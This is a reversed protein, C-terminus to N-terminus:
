QLAWLPWPQTWTPKVASSWSGGNFSCSWTSPNGYEIKTPTQSLFQNVNLSKTHGDTYSLNITNSFPVVSPDTENTYVCTGSGAKKFKPIWMERVAVPYATRHETGSNTDLIVPAFNVVPDVLEMILWAEAVSPVATQSGGLFSDRFRNAAGPAVNYTNLAGTLSLNLAYGGFLEGAQSWQKPTGSDIKQIAPHFFLEVSKAYPQVWYQWKYHNTRFYFPAATCGVGTPNFANGILAPNLATGAQCDDNRPYIDDYDATYQIIALGIQKQNSISVAKKAATKAQAFVPFLIAALIAIIAIVVLLEILTFAKKM